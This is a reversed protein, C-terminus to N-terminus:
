PLLAVVREEIEPEAAERYMVERPPEAVRVLVSGCAEPDVGHVLPLVGDPTERGARTAIRFTADEGTRAAALFRSRMAWRAGCVVLLLLGAILPAIWLLGLLARTLPGVEGFPLGLTISLVLAHAAAVFLLWAGGIALVRDVDGHSPRERVRAATAPVLTYALGVVGGLPVGLVMSGVAFGLILGFISEHRESHNAIAIFVPALLGGCFIAHMIGAGMTRNFARAPSPAGCVWRALHTSMAVGAGVLFTRELPGAPIWATLLATTAAAGFAVIATATRTATMWGPWALPIRELVERARKGGM